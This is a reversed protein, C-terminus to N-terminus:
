KAEKIVGGPNLNNDDSFAKTEKKGNDKITV